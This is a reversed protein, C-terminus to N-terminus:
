AQLGLTSGFCPVIIKVQVQKNLVPQKKKGLKNPLSFINSILGLLFNSLRFRLWFLYEILRNQGLKFDVQGMYGHVWIEQM